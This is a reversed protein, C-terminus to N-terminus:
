GVHEMNLPPRRTGQKQGSPLTPQSIFDHMGLVQILLGPHCLGHWPSATWLLRVPKSGMGTTLIPSGRGIAFITVDRSCGLGTQASVFASSTLVQPQPLPRALERLSACSRPIAEGAHGSLKSRRCNPLM